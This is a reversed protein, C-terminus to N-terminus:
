STELEKRQAKFEEFTAGNLLLQLFRDLVKILDDSVAFHRDVIVTSETTNNDMLIIECMGTDWVSLSALLADTSLGVNAGHQPPEILESSVESRQIEISPLKARLEGEVRRFWASFNEVM